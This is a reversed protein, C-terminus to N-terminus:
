QARIGKTSCIFRRVTRRPEVTRVGLVLAPTPVLLSFMWSDSPCSFAMIECDASTKRLINEEVCRLAPNHGMLVLKGGGRDLQM